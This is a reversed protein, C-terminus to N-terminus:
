SKEGKKSNTKRKLGEPMLRQVRESMWPTIFRGVQALVLGMAALDDVFGLVPVADPVADLSWIFYGLAGIILVRAWIPTGRDTLIVYLLIAREVVTRGAARPMSGLKQRLSGESYHRGYKGFGARKSETM